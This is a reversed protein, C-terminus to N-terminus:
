PKDDESIGSVVAEIEDVYEDRWEIYNRANEVEGLLYGLKIVDEVVTEPKYFNLRVVPVAPELKDELGEHGPNYIGPAYAMLIDPDMELIKELDPGSGRGVSPLASIEPFFTTQTATAREIGIIRDNTQIARTAETCDSNLTLITSVPLPITKVEGESDILTLEKERGLIILAIQTMDLINIDGDHKADALETKDRYELIILETYTVDQMNIKDDENANGFVGLTYDSAAAPLALLLLGMTIGILINIKM